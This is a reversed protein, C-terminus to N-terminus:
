TGSAGKGGHGKRREQIERFIQDCSENRIIKVALQVYEVQTFVSRREHVRILSAIAQTYRTSEVHCERSYRCMSVTVIGSLLASGGLGVQGPLQMSFILALLLGSAVLTIFSVILLVFVAIRARRRDELLQTIAADAPPPATTPKKKAM